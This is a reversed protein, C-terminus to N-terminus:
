DAPISTGEGNRMRRSAKLMKIRPAKPAELKTGGSKLGFNREQSPGLGEWWSFGARPSTAISGAKGSTPHRNYNRIHIGFQSPQQLSSKKGEISQRQQNPPLFPMRGTFVSHYSELMTIQTLRSKCIEWSIGNGSVIEQELLELNTKGKQYRNVHTTGSLIWPATFRNCCYYNNYHCNSNMLCTIVLGGSICALM